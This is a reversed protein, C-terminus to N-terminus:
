NGGEGGGPRGQVDKSSSEMKFSSHGIDAKPGKMKEFEALQDKTLVDYLQKILENTLKGDLKMAAGGANPNQYGTTNQRATNQFDDILAKMNDKQEPTIKLARAVEPDFFAMPGDVQMHIQKLRNFQGPQLIKDLKKLLKDQNSKAAKPMISGPDRPGAGRSLAKFGNKVDNSIANAAEGVAVAVKAQQEDTLNL